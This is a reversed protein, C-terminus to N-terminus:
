RHAGGLWRASPALVGTAISTLVLVAVGAAVRAPWAWDFTVQVLAMAGVTALATATLAVAIRLPSLHQGPVPRPPAPADVPPLLREARVPDWSPHRLPVSLARALSPARAMRRALHVWPRVNNDLPSWAHLPELTGYVPPEVEAQFTGFLQDWILLTFGYNKDHYRVNRAHHVRHHAPTMLVAELPGLRGVFRTHILFQWLHIAAFLTGFIVPDLGLVAIPLVFIATQLWQLYGVRQATALNYESSQHHVEHITWLASLEHGARHRWYFAFELLLFGLIWGAIGTPLQVVALHEEAYVYLALTTFGLMAQVVVQGLSTGVSSLADALSYWGRGLWWSAAAEALMLALVLLAALLVLSPV